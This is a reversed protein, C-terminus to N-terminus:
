IASRRHMDLLDTAQDEWATFLADVSNDRAYTLEARTAPLLTILQLEPKGDADPLADFGDAAYPHTGAVVGAIETGPIVPGQDASMIVEDLGLGARRGMVIEATLPVLLHAEKRQEEHVTCVLEQPLVVTIRQFRLGNTVVSVLNNPAYCFFLGYGRNRGLATPEEFERAEGLYRQLHPLFGAFRETM